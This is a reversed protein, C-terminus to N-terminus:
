EGDGPGGTEGSPALNSSPALIRRRFAVVRDVVESSSELVRIREGSTLTLVTDPSSEVLSILDSNVVVPDRNIRTLPIM